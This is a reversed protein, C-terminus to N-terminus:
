KPRRPRPTATTALPLWRAPNAVFLARLEEQGIGHAALVDAYGAALYRAPRDALNALPAALAPRVLMLHCSVRKIMPWCQAHKCGAGPARRIMSLNGTELRTPISPGSRDTHSIVGSEINGLSTLLEIQCRGLRGRLTIVARRNAITKPRATFDAPGRTCGTLAQRAQSVLGAAVDCLVAARPLRGHTSRPTSGTLRCM